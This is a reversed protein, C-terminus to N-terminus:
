KTLRGLRQLYDLQAVEIDGMVRHPMEKKTPKKGVIQDMIFFSNLDIIRHHVYKRVKSVADLFRLDFDPNYGIVYPKRLTCCYNKWTTYTRECKGNAIEDLLGNRVHMETVYPDMKKRIFLPLSYIAHFRSIEKLDIDTLIAGIELIADLHPDLGTTEIDLWLLETM